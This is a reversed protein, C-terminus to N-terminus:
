AAVVRARGAHKAAYLAEDARQRWEDVSMRPGIVAVGASFSVDFTVGDFANHPVVSFEALLRAVFRQTEDRSIGRLLLGFEEGGCRGAEDSRRINRRLFGSFSSLVQDGVIHGYRDNVGKFHDIDIMVLGFEEGSRRYEEFAQDLRRNFTAHNLLGTAEPTVHDATGDPVLSLNAKKCSVAEVAALRLQGILMEIQQWSEQDPGPSKLSECVREANAAVASLHSVGFTGATGALSHFNRELTEAAGMKRSQLGAWSEDIAELRKPLGELFKQRLQDLRQELIAEPSM